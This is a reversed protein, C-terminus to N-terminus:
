KWSLANRYTEGKATRLVIEMTWSQTGEKWVQEAPTQYVPARQGPAVTAVSLPVDGKQRKGDLVTAVTLTALQIAQSGENSLFVSVKFREGAKPSPPNAEFVIKGPLEAAQTGRKVDVGATDEFGVLGGQETGKAETKGFVFSRVPGGARPGSTAADAQSKAGIAGTKGILAAQNNPDTELIRNYLAIAAEYQKAAMAANAQNLHDTIQATRASQARADADRVARSKEEAIRSSLDAISRDWPALRRAAELESEATALDGRALAAEAAKRQVLAKQGEQANELVKRVSENAPDARLAEQAAAVARDYSGAKFASQATRIQAAAKGEAEEFAPAPALTVPPPEPTALTTPPPAPTAVAETVKPSDAPKRLALFSMVGVAVLALTVAVWPLVSTKPAPRPRAPIRPVPATAVRTAGPRM